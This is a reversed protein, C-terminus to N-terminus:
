TYRTKMWLVWLPYCLHQVNSRWVGVFCSWNTLFTYMDCYSYCLTSKLVVNHNTCKKSRILNSVLGATVRLANYPRTMQLDPNNGQDLGATKQLDPEPRRWRRTGDNAGERWHEKRDSMWCRAVLIVLSFHNSVKAVIRWTEPLKGCITCEGWLPTFTFGFNAHMM